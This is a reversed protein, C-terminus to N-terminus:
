EWRFAIRSAAASGWPATCRRSRFRDPTKSPRRPQQSSFQERGSLRLLDDPMADRRCRVRREVQPFGIIAATFPAATPQPMSSASNASMRIAGSRALNASSNMLRGRTRHRRIKDIAVSQRGAAAASSKNVPSTIVAASASRTPSTLRTTSCSAEPTRGGVKRRADGAVRRRRQAVHFFPQAAGGRAIRLLDARPRDIGNPPERPGVVMLLPHCAEESLPLRDEGSPLRRLDTAVASGGRLGGTHAPM